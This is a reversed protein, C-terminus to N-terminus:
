YIIQIRLFIWRCLVVFARVCVVFARVRARARACVCVVRERERERECVCECPLYCTVLVVAAFIPTMKINSKAYCTHLSM